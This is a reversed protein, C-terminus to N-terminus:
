EKGDKEELSSGSTLIPAADIEEIEMMNAIQQLTALVQTQEFQELRGLERALRDQLLPPKKELLRSAKATVRFRRERRDKVAPARRILKERLLRRIIGSTTSQGLTVARAVASVSADELRHIARLVLLQPGTLGFEDILSRSHVDIGRVIRRLAAIIDEELHENIAMALEFSAAVM